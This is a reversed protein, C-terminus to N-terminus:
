FMGVYVNRSVSMIDSAHMVMDGSISLIDGLASGCCDHCGEFISLKSIIDVLHIMTDRWLKSCRGFCEYCDWLWVHFGKLISFMWLSRLINGMLIM